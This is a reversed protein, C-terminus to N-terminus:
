GFAIILGAVPVLICGAMMLRAKYVREAGVPEFTARHVWALVVVVLIAYGVWIMAQGAARVEQQSAQAKAWGWGAGERDEGPAPAM